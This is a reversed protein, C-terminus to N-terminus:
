LRHAYIPVRWHKALAGASGAHDFHGHTLVIAEPRAGRGFRDEAIKRIRDHNGETGADLLVWESRDGVLYCNGIKVPIRLVDRAIQKVDNMSQGDPFPNPQDSACAM